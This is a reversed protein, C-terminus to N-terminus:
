LCNLTWKFTSSANEVPFHPHNQGRLFFLMTYLTDRLTVVYKYFFIGFGNKKCTMQYFVFLLLFLLWEKHMDVRNVASPCWGCLTKMRCLKWCISCIAQWAAYDEAKFKRMTHMHYAQKSLQYCLTKCVTSNMIALNRGLRQTSSKCNHM